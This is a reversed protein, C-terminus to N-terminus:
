ALNGTKGIKEALSKQVRKRTIEVLGLKTMDVAVAKVPDKKLEAALADMLGKQQEASEMNIFDAVIIGSISRLRLQRAIECAAELNIRYFTDAGKGKECKGTNVDIATLAETAQIVLYAGSKLWVRERLAEEFAQEIPYCKSLPLLRDQYFSLKPLAAPFCTQMYDKLQAYLEEDDTLIQEYMADRSDRVQSLWAAPSRYLCSRCPRHPANSLLEVCRARLAEAELRIEEPSAQAANTRVIWGFREDAWEQMLALLEERRASGIKASVGMQKKGTTLVLYRGTLSLNSTVSPAKTKVSEKSVQVLIEDGPALRDSRKRSVYVPEPNDAISYYCPVRGEIEVFAAGINAAIDMVKGVYINGLISPSTDDEFFLDEAKRDAFLAIAVGGRYNTIILKRSM